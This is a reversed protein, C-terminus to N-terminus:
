CKVIQEHKHEICYLSFCGINGIRDESFGLRIGHQVKKGM